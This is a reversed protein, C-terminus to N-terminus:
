EVTLRYFVRDQPASFDRFIRVSSSTEPDFELQMNGVPQWSGLDTSREIVYSSFQLHPYRLISIGGNRRITLGPPVPKVVVQFSVAIAFVPEDPDDTTLRLTGGMAGLAAFNTRLMVQATQGPEIFLGAGPLGGVPDISLGPSAEPLLYADLLELRTAGDNLITVPWSGMENPYVEGYAVTAGNQIERLDIEPGTFVAIDQATSSNGLDFVYVAGLPGHSPFGVILRSDDMALKSFRYDSANDNILSGRRFWTKGVREYILVQGSYVKGIESSVAVRRGDCAIAVGSGLKVHLGDALPGFIKSEQTWSSGEPAFIYAAGDVLVPGRKQEPAGAVIRGGDMSVKAGLQDGATGDAAFLEAEKTWGNGSGQYVYVAGCRTKTGQTRGPAGVAIRNEDIDVSYGFSEGEQPDPPFVLTFFSWNGSSNSSVMFAGGTVSQLNRKGPLGLVLTSGELSISATYAVDGNSQLKRDFMWTLGTHRFMQVSGGPLPHVDNKAVVALTDGELAAQSGFFEYDQPDLSEVQKELAWGGGSRHFLYVVGAFTGSPTTEASAAIMARDGDIDMQTGGFSGDTDAASGGIIQDLNVVLPDITVPYLANRDDIVWEFGGAAIALGGTLERGTADWAKLDRYGYLAKGAKDRFVLAGSPHSEDQHATLDGTQFGIRVAETSGHPRAALTMGHEFGDASNQYWETSGDARRYEVRSGTASIRPTEADRRTIALAEGGSSNRISAGDARFRAALQQAPSTAFFLAGENEPNLSETATIARIGLRTSTFIRELSPDSIIRTSENRASTAERSPLAQLEGKVTATVASRAHPTAGGRFRSDPLLLSALGCALAVPLISRVKM